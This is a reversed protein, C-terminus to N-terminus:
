FQGMCKRIAIHAVDCSFRYSTRSLALRQPYGAKIELGLLHNHTNM